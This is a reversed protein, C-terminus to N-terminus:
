KGTIRDFIGRNIQGTPNSPDMFLESSKDGVWRGIRSNIEAVGPQPGLLSDFVTGQPQASQAPAGGGTYANPPPGSPKRAPPTMTPGGASPAAAAAEKTPGAQRDLPKGGTLERVAIAGSDQLRQRQELLSDIKGQWDAAISPDIPAGSESSSAQLKMWEKTYDNISKDIDSVASQTARIISDVSDLKRVETEFRERRSALGSQFSQQQRTMTEDHQFGRQQEGARAATEMGFMTTDHERGAEAQEKLFTQNNAQLDKQAQIGLEQLAQQRMFAIEDDERQTVKTGVAFLGKGLTEVAGAWNTM